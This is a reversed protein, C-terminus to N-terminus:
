DVNNFQELFSSRKKSIQELRRGLLLLMPRLFRFGAGTQLRCLEDESTSQQSLAILNIQGYM